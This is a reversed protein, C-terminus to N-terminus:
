TVLKQETIIEKLEEISLLRVGSHLMKHCNSCVLAIEGIKTKRQGGLEPIPTTHHAEIFGTGHEGYTESFSFECVDCRLEGVQDLRHEKAKKSISTDRELSRHKKFKEKGEPFNSEEDENIIKSKKVGTKRDIIRYGRRIFYDKTEVANFDDSPFEKGSLFKNAISIMYKPPYKIGNLLLDYRKSQRSAPVGKKDIESAAKLFHAHQFGKPIM